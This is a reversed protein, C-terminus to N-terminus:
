NLSKEIARALVAPIHRGHPLPEMAWLEGYCIRSAWYGDSGDLWVGGWPNMVRIRGAPDFGAAVVVHTIGGPRVADGRPRELDAPVSLVVPTGSALLARLQRVLVEPDHSLIPRMVVGQARVWGLYRYIQTPGAYGQGYVADKVGEATYRRGTLYELGAAISAPVCNMQANRSFRGDPGREHLQDM